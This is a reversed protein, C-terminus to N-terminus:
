KVINSVKTYIELENVLGGAEIFNHLIESDSTSIQSKQLKLKAGILLSKSITQISFDDPSKTKLELINQSLKELRKYNSDSYLQPILDSALVLEVYGLHLPKVMNGLEFEGAKTNVVLLNEYYNLLEIDADPRGKLEKFGNFGNILVKLGDMENNYALYLGYLPYNMCTEVLNKTSMQKLWNEPIQCADQMEKLSNYSSWVVPDTVKEFSYAIGDIFPSKDLDEKIEENVNCSHMIFVALLVFPFIKSM